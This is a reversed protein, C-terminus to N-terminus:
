VYHIMVSEHKYFLYTTHSPVTLSNHQQKAEFCALWAALQSVHPERSEPVRTEKQEAMVRHQADFKELWETLKSKKSVTSIAALTPEKIDIDELQMQRRADFEQLRLNLVFTQWDKKKKNSCLDHVNTAFGDRGRPAMFQESGDGDAETM